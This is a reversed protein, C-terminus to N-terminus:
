RAWGQGASTRRGGCRNRQVGRGINMHSWDANDKWVGLDWNKLYIIRSRQKAAAIEHDHSNQKRRRSDQDFHHQCRAGFEPSVPVACTRRRQVDANCTGTWKQKGNCEPQRTGSRDHRRQKEWTKCFPSREVGDGRVCCFVVFLMRSRNDFDRDCVSNNSRVSVSHKGFTGRM